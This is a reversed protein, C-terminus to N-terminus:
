VKKRAGAKRKEGGRQGLRGGRESGTRGREGEELISYLGPNHDNNGKRVDDFHNRITQLLYM